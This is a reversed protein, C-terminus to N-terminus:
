NKAYVRKWPSWVKTALNNKDTQIHSIREAVRVYEKGDFRYLAEFHSNSNSFSVEIDALGHHTTYSRIRVAAAWFAGVRHGCTGRSVYISLVCSNQISCYDTLGVVPDANGDGDLDFFEGKIIEKPVGTGGVLKDPATADYERLVEFDKSTPPHPKVCSGPLDIGESDNDARLRQSLHSSKIHRLNAPHRLVWSVWEELEYPRANFSDYMSNPLPTSCSFAVFILAILIHGNRPGYM